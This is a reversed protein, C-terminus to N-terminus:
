RRPEPLLCGIVETVPEAVPRGALAADVADRLDHTSASQGRAGLDNWQDDIRGRYLIVGNRRVIAEPTRTAGLAGILAHTPDLLVTDPLAYDRQHAAAAAADLDPDAHVIWLEVPLNQWVRALEGIAPSYANAIPCEQSTVVFVQVLDAAATLPDHRGGAPDLLEIRPPAGCAALAGLLLAISRRPCCQRRPTNM